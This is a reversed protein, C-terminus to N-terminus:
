VLKQTAPWIEHGVRATLFSGFESKPHWRGMAQYWTSVRRKLPLAPFVREAFSRRIGFASKATM